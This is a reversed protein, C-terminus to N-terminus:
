WPEHANHVAALGHSSGMFRPRDKTKLKIKFKTESVPFLVLLVCRNLPMM